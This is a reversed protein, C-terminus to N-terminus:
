PKFIIIILMEQHGLVSPICVEHKLLSLFRCDELEFFAMSDPSSHGNSCVEYLIGGDNLKKDKRCIYPIFKHSIM